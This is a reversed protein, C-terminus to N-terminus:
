RADDEDAYEGCDSQKIGSQSATKCPLQLTM